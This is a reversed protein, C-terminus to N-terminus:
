RILTVNGKKFSEEGNFCKVKLYWGFVGVDAPKGKYIGDWGKTKDNTEWVLEGWRNYVAFYVEQVKLGRVFLIDNEGDSNPTFTNPIFVDSDICGNLNVDVFVILTEKCPGNTITVTYTTPRDPTASVTYGTKPLISNSPNWNVISGADGTYILTSSNGQVISPPVANASIPTTSIQTITVNTTLLFSCNNSTTIVVSYQTNATPSATPFAINSIDLSATPSWQYSIGGSASLNAKEGKCIIKNPTIALAPPLLVTIVKNVTDKCGDTNTAILSVTHTGGTFYFNYPNQITSTITASLSWQWTAINSASLDFFNVGGGCPNTTYNFDAIPKPYVTIQTTLTKSCFNGTSNNEIQVTYITTTTPNAVPSAIITNSLNTSPTWTYNTGGSATINSTFGACITSGNTVGPFFNIISVSNTKVDICGNVDTTTLSITFNGAVPYTYSPSALSSTGVGNGFNWNYPNAGLNGTSSNSIAISNTCPTSTLTFSTTPKPYVTIFTVASDKINCSSPDKVVLSITYTGPTTFTVAPNINTSNTTVTSGNNTYWIFSSNTGTPATANTFSVLLPSCGAVTNTNITSVALQLQFDLKIVGNNCLSSLNPGPPCATSMGCPWAGPTVPFDDNGFCGACVSQYIRGQPDFRSTGGDVHEQSLGGGFYSGYKLTAANSDLGMFYFDYGDTTSQTPIALPMGSLLLGTILLNAGWGSLYINNCNDVSFASPSIDFNTAYNGFVTSMNLTNLSANFRSVFQHKGPVNFVTTATPAIVVPINGLSQGYIYVNNKKDSQIFFSQDYFPTGFYTANLVSNGLPNIRIIYGDAVGGQYATQYGSGMFPFDNSTTGGTVYVEFNNKVILGYGADTSSGGIFSCYQLSSLNSNFKALIGDQKGGLTNDFGNVSPFDTSRTSSTIYINNSVDIQIEGRCQDGFNTQLSDYNPQAVTVNGTAPPVAPVSYLSYNDTQNIGDNGSGGIYTSALMTTGTSNLKSVYIDTGNIFRMGNYVFMLFSGGNYSNDYAGTSTPFNTSSTVGYLCLNNSKDVILSNVTETNGGGLYTSFLLNNGTSNYKTVVVDTNGYYVPGFFSSSYAGVTVPYGINFITGGSYLNGQTDFTATMGFNDATSGSQAAFVLLPDIILEYNKNYGNPFDYSVTNNKLVFDCTVEVVSNNILQYAYPKNEFIENVQPKIYLIDKKLTINDIGVYKLKIDNVNAGPKVHFNYKIGNVSTILEYDINNYLNKYWIQHYNLVNGKWKSKDSGIYFNEYYLGQQHQQTFVNPNSGEFELNFSHGKILDDIFAGKEHKKFHFNRCKKKDYLNFTLKNKELFLAGGDLQARFLINNNWQGNNQTFTLGPHVHPTIIQKPSTNQSFVVFSSLLIFFLFVVKKFM